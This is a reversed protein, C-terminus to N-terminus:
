TETEPSAQENANIVVSLSLGNDPPEGVCDPDEGEIWFVFTYRIMESPGFDVENVTLVKNPSIFPEAFDSAPTSIREPAFRTIGDETVKNVNSRQAYVERNHESLNHNSYFMVRLVSNLDLAGNTPIGVVEIDLSLSFEAYSDGSNKVYFTYKFFPVNAGVSTPVPTLTEESDLIAFDDDEERWASYTYEHLPPIGNVAIYTSNSEFSETNSLSLSATGRNLSVTYAGATNALLAIVGLVITGVAGICGLSFVIKRVKRRRVYKSYVSTGYKDM